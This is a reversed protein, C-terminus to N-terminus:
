GVTMQEIRGGGVGGYRRRWRGKRRGCMQSKGTPGAARNTENSRSDVGDENGRENGSAEPEKHTKPDRLSAINSSLMPYLRFGGGGSALRWDCEGRFSQTEEIRMAGRVM